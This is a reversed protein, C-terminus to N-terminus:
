ETLLYIDTFRASWWGTSVDDFGLDIKAGKIQGGTDGAVAIGYGPIYVKSGLKIVKPDVAIVGYGATLGTATTKNCGPCNADYSTAWVNLKQSYKLTGYITDITYEAPPIAVIEETPIVSEVLITETSYVRGNHYVVKTQFIKKGELGNQIIKTEGEALSPDTVTKKLYKVAQVNTSIQESFLSETTPNLPNTLNFGLGTKEAFSVQPFLFEFFAFSVILFILGASKASIRNLFLTSFGELTSNLVAVKGVVLYGLKNM